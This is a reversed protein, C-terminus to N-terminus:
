FPFRLHRIILIIRRWYDNVKASMKDFLQLGRELTKNFAAEENSIVKQITTSQEQLEPFATAMKEIVVSALESFFGPALDLKKGFLIARRALFADLCTIVDKMEQYSAM